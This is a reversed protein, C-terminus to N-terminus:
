VYAVKNYNSIKHCLNIFDQNDIDMKSINIQKTVWQVNGEVYGRSSDIRDLSANGRICNTSATDFYLSEGSLACQRNQQIFVNWAYEKSINFELNRSKAGRRYHGWLTGTINKYGTSRLGLGLKAYYTQNRLEINNRLLIKKITTPCRSYKNGIQRLTYNNLYMYIIDQIDLDPKCRCVLNTCYVLDQIPITVEKGCTCRCIYCHKNRIRNDTKRIFEFGMFNNQSLINYHYKHIKNRGAYGSIIGCNRNLQKAILSTKETPYTLYIFDKEWNQLDLQKMNFESYFLHITDM